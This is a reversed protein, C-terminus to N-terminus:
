KVEEKERKRDKKKKVPYLTVRGITVTIWKLGDVSSFSDVCNSNRQDEESNSDISISLSNGLSKFPWRQIRVNVKITNSAFTTTNGAFDFPTSANFM